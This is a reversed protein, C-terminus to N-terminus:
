RGKHYSPTKYSREVDTLTRSIFHVPQWGKATRQFLGASLGSEEQQAIKIFRLGENNVEELTLAGRSRLEVPSRCNELFHVVRASVQTLRDWNSYKEPHLEDEQKLVAIFAADRFQEARHFQKKVKVDSEKKNEVKSEPWAVSQHKLFCPAQWWKENTSLAQVTAGRSLLDAPNLKSPVYRWQQPESLRQILGVRNAVFPKFQRSKGRVWYLVDMSDSWLTWKSSDVALSESVSKTLTVGVVTAILELRPISVAQLPSVRSKSAVMRSTVTGDVYTHRIYVVAGYAEESADVFTHLSTSKVDRTAQLCQPICISPLDELERFWEDVKSQLDSGLPDDWDVGAAWTEQLLIRAHVVYPSLFGLPDFLTATKRLLERKTNPPGDIPQSVQFKFIDEQPLWLVGLTKVPQVDGSDLDVETACVAAPIHQLM